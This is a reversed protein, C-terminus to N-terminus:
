LAPMAFLLLKCPQCEVVESQRCTISKYLYPLLGELLEKHLNHLEKDRETAM